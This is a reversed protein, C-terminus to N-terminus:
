SFYRVTTEYSRQAAEELPRERHEASLIEVGWPGDYGSARAAKILGTIDFEGEGLLRRRDVTDAIPDGVTKLTGDDLEVCTIFGRPLSAIDALPIEGRTVHWSDLMLGSGKGASEGLVALASPLDPINSFPIPELAALAGTDNIQRGLEQFANHMQEIPWAGGSFDGCIKIHRANLKEATTLLDRRVADSRERAPGDLFWDMLVELELHKIGNDNLLSRIAAYGYRKLTKMLDAHKLGIGRYGARAAAEVRDRFDWPSSDDETFPVYKGALTWYCAILDVPHNMM